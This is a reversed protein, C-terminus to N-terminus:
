RSGVSTEEHYTSRVFRAEVFYKLAGKQIPKTSSKGDITRYSGKKAPKKQDYLQGNKLRKFGAISARNSIYFTTLFVSYLIYGLVVVVYYLRLIYYMHKVLCDFGITDCETNSTLKSAGISEM